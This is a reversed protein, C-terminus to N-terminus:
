GESVQPKAVVEHLYYKAHHWTVHFESSLGIQLGYKNKIYAFLIELEAKARPPLYGQDGRM